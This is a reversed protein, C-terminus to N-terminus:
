APQTSAAPLLRFSQVFADFTPANKDAVSPAAAAALTWACAPTTFMVDIKNIKTTGRALSYSIKQATVGSVTVTGLSHVETAGLKQLLTVHQTVFPDTPVNDPNEECSVSINSQVGDITETGFFTDVQQAGALVSNPNAHWGDPITAAYGRAPFNFTNGDITPQAHPAETATM